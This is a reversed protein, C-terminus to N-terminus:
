SGRQPRRTEEGDPLPHRRVAGDRTVAYAGMRRLRPSYAHLTVAPASGSHKVRHIDSSDFDFTQGAGFVSSTMPTALHLRDERVEGEIVTVAGSSLDHDHFGTDHGPMWCILWAEVAPEDVLREFVRKDPDPRVLHQWCDRETSLVTVLDRIDPIALAM